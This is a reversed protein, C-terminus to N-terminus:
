LLEISFNPEKARSSAAKEKQREKGDEIMSALIKDVIDDSKMGESKFFELVKDNNLMNFEQKARKSKEGSGKITKIFSKKLFQVCGECMPVGSVEGITKWNGCCFCPVTASSSGTAELRRQDVVVDDCEECRGDDVIFKFQKCDVCVNSGLLEKFKFKRFYMSIVEDFELDENFQSMKFIFMVQGSTEKYDFIVYGDKEMKEGAEFMAEVTKWSGVCIIFHELSIHSENKAVLRTMGQETAVMTECVPINEESGEEPMRYKNIRSYIDAPIPSM